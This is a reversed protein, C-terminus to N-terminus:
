EAERPVDRLEEMEESGKKLCLVCTGGVSGSM